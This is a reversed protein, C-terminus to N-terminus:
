KIRYNESHGSGALPIFLNKYREADGKRKRLTPPYLFRNRKGRSLQIALRVNIVVFSVPESHL